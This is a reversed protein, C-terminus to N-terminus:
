GLPKQKGKKIIVVNGNIEAHYGEPIYYTAEQLESDKTGFPIEITQEKKKLEKKETDWEYNVRHMEKLLINRQEKTAPRIDKNDTWTCREPFKNVLFEGYVNLGCYAGVTRETFKGNYIFPHNSISVLMDGDKADEISWIHYKKDIIAKVDYSDDFQYFGSDMSTIHLVSNGDTIWDGVKFKSEVNDTNDIKEEKISELASKGQSKNSQKELWAYVDLIDVDDLFDWSLVTELYKLANYIAKWMKEDENEKLEPFIFEAIEQPTDSVYHGYKGTMWEKARKLAKDYARAKKTIDLMDRNMNVEQKLMGSSKLVENSLRDDVTQYNM